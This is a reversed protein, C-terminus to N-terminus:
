NIKSNLSNRIDDCIDINIKKRCLPCRSDILKIICNNCMLHKDSEKCIKFLCFVYNKEEYAEQHSIQCICCEEDNIKEQLQDTNIELKKENINKQYNKEKKINQMSNNKVKCNGM